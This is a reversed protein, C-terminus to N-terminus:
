EFRNFLTSRLQFDQKLDAQLQRSTQIWLSHEIRDKITDEFQEGTCSRCM